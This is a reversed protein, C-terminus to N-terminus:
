EYGMEARMKKRLGARMDGDEMQITQYKGNIMSTITAGYNEAMQTKNFNTGIITPQQDDFRAKLIREVQSRIYSNGNGGSALSKWQDKGMEDLVVFDSGLFWELRKKARWDHFGKKIDEDLQLLTTYFATFGRRIAMSLVYSAFISKGVGNNGVFVLGYGNRQAVPIRKVYQRVQGFAEVNHTIDGPKTYWFEQPIGAEYASVQYRWHRVCSCKNDDRVSGGCKECGVVLEQGKQQKFEDVQEETRM